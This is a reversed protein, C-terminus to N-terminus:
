QASIPRRRPGILIPDAGAASALGIVSALMTFPLVLKKVGKAILIFAPWQAIHRPM